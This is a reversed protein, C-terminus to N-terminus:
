DLFRADEDYMWSMKEADSPDETRKLVEVCAARLKQKMGGTMHNWLDDAFDTFGSKSIQQTGPAPTSPSTPSSSAANPQSKSEAPKQSIIADYDSIIIPLHVFDNSLTSIADQGNRLCKEPNSTPDMALTVVYCGCPM